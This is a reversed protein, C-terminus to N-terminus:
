RRRKKWKSGKPMATMVDETISLDGYTRKFQRTSNIYQFLAKTTGANGLLKSLADTSIDVVRALEHCDREHTSCHLLYHEVTQEAQHCATCTLTEVKKFRHLYHNLPCHGTWLQMLILAQ